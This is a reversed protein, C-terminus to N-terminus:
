AAAGALSLETMTAFSAGDARALLELLDAVGERESEGMVAHHLMVGVSGAARADAALVVGIEAPALRTGRRHALWDVTVPLEILEDLGLAPARSETSLVRLGARLVARGTEATCRNWPPTFIPDPELELLAALLDRGGEIDARQEEFRRAAGFECKRGAPEHNAHSLGHQHLGLRGPM